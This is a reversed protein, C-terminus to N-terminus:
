QLAQNSLAVFGNCKTLFVFFDHGNTTTFADGATKNFGTLTIAGATANNTIQIIMTYDGAATPAALTFAGGNVIRKMNGNVPDPTYTGSSKTGDDVATTIYGGTLTMQSTTGIGPTDIGTTGNITVPM